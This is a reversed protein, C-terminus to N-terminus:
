VARDMGSVVWFVGEERGVGLGAIFRVKDFGKERMDGGRSGGLEGVMSIGREKESWVERAVM